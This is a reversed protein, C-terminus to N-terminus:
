RSSAFSAIGAEARELCRDMWARTHETSVHQVEFQNPHIYVGHDLLRHQLAIFAKFDCAGAVDRYNEMPPTDDNALLFIAMVAGIHRVVNAVGHRTLIEELGGALYATDRELQEYMSPGQEIVRSLVANAAALVGANGSYVGGHFVEGRVILDLIDERGGFAAVPFGGGLAKSLVTLDPQVSYRAQAGGAAVRLGSIVEDFILLCGFEDALQRLGSLFGSAPAVAGANAMVPELIIAAIEDAHDELCARVSELSNYRALWADIQGNMGLTGATAPAYPADSLEHLGAHYRHFVADNWGHYHGEFMLLKKRGTFARALRVTTAVAESGSNAFRLLEISPFLQKIKEGVEFNLRQPFGLLSGQEQIQRAVANVIFEPRHGFLLPGYGMNLDICENGDVDWIRCGDGREAVFPPHYPLVRMTSSDGGAVSHKARRLMEESQHCERKEASAFRQGSHETFDQKQTKSVM